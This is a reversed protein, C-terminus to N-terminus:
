ANYKLPASNALALAQAQATLQPSLARGKLFNEVAHERYPKGAIGGFVVRADPHHQGADARGDRAVGDRLGDGGAATDERLIGQLGAATGSNHSRDTTTRLTFANVRVAPVM